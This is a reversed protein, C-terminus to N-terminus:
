EHGDFVGWYLIKRDEEGENGPITLAGHVLDDEVPFNSPVRVIDYHSVGFEEQPEVRAEEERLKAEAENQTLPLYPYFDKEFKPNLPLSITKPSM